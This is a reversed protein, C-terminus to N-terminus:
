KSVSNGQHHRVQHAQSAGCTRSRRRPCRIDSCSSFRGVHRPLHCGWTLCRGVRWPVLTIGDPRKGDARFLGIPERSSPVGSRVCARCLLDNLTNHRITRGASRKCCLGHIGRADVLSGCPCLHPACLNMGLRLGIAVRIAEDDLRLGCSSIPMANIWDGSYQAALFCAKDVDDVCHSEIIDLGHKVSAEDWSQQKTCAIAESTQTSYRSSWLASVRDVPRDIVSFSAPLAASQISLTSAASALFASPALADVSRIGLGGNKVPLSAQIWNIDSLTCNAIKEIATRQLYDFQILAPNSTCPSARLVYLMRTSGLSHKLIVLADHSSILAMRDSARQLDWCKELLVRDMAPADLIPAGLLIADSPNVLKFGRLSHPLVTPFHYSILECKERNLRLGLEAGLSEVKTVDNAM